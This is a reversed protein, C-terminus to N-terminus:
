TVSEFSDYNVECIQLIISACITESKYQIEADKVCACLTNLSKTYRLLSCEMNTARNKLLDMYIGCLCLVADDLAPNNGLLAPIYHYFSGQSRLPLILQSRSDELFYVLITANRDNESFLSCSIKVRFTASGAQYEEYLPFKDGPENKFTKLDVSPLVGGEDFIYRKKEYQTKLPWNEDVFKWRKTYGPCKWRASVCAM